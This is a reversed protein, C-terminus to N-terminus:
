GMRSTFQQLDFYDRWAKIKGNRIEVDLPVACDPGQAVRAGRLIM